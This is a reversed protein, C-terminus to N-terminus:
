TNKLVSDRSGSLRALIGRHLEEQGPVVVQSFPNDRRLIMHSGHQGKFQCRAKGLAKVGDRGSVGPLKSM